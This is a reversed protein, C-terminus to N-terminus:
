LIGAMMGGVCSTGEGHAPTVRLHSESGVSTARLGWQPTVAGASGWVGDRVECTGPCCGQSPKPASGAM